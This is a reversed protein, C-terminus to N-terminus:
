CNFGIHLYYADGNNDVILLVVGLGGKCVKLRGEDILCDIGATRDDILIKILDKIKASHNAEIAEMSLPIKIHGDGKLIRVIKSNRRLIM